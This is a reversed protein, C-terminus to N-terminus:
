SKVLGHNQLLQMNQKTLLFPFIYDDQYITADQRQIGVDIHSGIHVSNVKCNSLVFGMNPQFNAEICPSVRFPFQKKINEQHGDCFKWNLHRCKPYENSTFGKYTVPSGSGAVDLLRSDGRIWCGNEWECDAIDPPFEVHLDTDLATKASIKPSNPRKGLKVLSFMNKPVDVYRLSIVGDILRYCEDIFLRGCSRMPSLYFPLSPFLACPFTKSTHEFLRM